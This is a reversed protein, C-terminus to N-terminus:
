STIAAVLFPAHIAGRSDALLMATVRTKEKGSNHVWVTRIGTNDITHTPLHEFNLTTQDTNYVETIRLEFILDQVEHRFTEAVQRADSPTRQGIRTRRRWLLAAAFQDRRLRVLRRAKMQLMLPSVPVGERRLDRIWFAINGEAERPLVGGAGARPKKCLHGSGLAVQYAIEASDEYWRRLQRKKPHHKRELNVSNREHQTPSAEFGKIRPRGERPM